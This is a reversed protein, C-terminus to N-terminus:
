VSRMAARAVKSGIQRHWGGGPDRAVSLRCRSDTCRHFQCGAPGHRNGERIERRKLRLLSFSVVVTAIVALVAIGVLGAPDISLGWDSLLLDDKLVPM